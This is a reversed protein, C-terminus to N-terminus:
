ELQPKTDCINRRGQALRNAAKTAESHNQTGNVTKYIIIYCGQQYQVNSKPLHPRLPPMRPLAGLRVCEPVLHQVRAYTVKTEFSINFVLKTVAWRFHHVTAWNSASLLEFLLVSKKLTRFIKTQFDLNTWDYSFKSGQAQCNVNDIM